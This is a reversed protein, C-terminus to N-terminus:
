IKFTRLTEPARSLDCRKKFNGVGKNHVYGAIDKERKQIRAQQTRGKIKETNCLDEQILIGPANTAGSLFTDLRLPGM